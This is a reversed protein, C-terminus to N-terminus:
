LISVSNQPAQEGKAEIVIRIKDTDINLYNAFIEVRKASITEKWEREGANLLKRIEDQGGRRMSSRLNELATINQELQMLQTIVDQASMAMKQDGKELFRVLM